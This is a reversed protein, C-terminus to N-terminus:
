ACFATPVDDYSGIVPYTGLRQYPAGEIAAVGQVPRAVKPGSSRRTSRPKGIAWKTFSTTTTTRPKKARQGACSMVSAYIGVDPFNGRLAAIESELADLDVITMFLCDANRAAFDRRARIEASILLPRQNGYPKPKAIVGKLNFFKGAFDFPETESWLRKVITLWEETYAYREDHENLTV